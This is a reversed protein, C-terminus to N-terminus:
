EVFYVGSVSYVWRRREAGRPAIVHLAPQLSPAHNRQEKRKSKPRDSREGIM